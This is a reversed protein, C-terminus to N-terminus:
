KGLVRRQHLKKREESSLAEECAFCMPARKFRDIERIVEAEADKYVERPTKMVGNENMNLPNVTMESRFTRQRDGKGCQPCVFGRHTRMAKVVQFKYSARMM